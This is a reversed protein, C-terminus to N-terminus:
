GLGGPDAVTASQGVGGSQQVAAGTALSEAAISDISLPSVISIKRFTMVFETKNRGDHSEELIEGGMNAYSRQPLSLFVPEGRDFIARLMDAARLDRRVFSGAAGLAGFLFLPTASIQGRFTISEPEKIVNDTTAREVPNSTWTYRKRMTVQHLLDMSVRGPVNIGTVVNTLLFATIAGLASPDQQFITATRPRLLRGASGPM